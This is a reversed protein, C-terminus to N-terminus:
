VGECVGECGGECGGECVGCLGSWLGWGGPQEILGVCLGSHELHLVRDSEDQLDGRTQRRGMHSVGKKESLHMWLMETSREGLPLHTEIHRSLLIQRSLLIHERRWLKRSQDVCGGKDVRKAPSPGWVFVVNRFFEPHRVLPEQPHTLQKWRCRLSHLEFLCVGELGCVRVRGGRVGGGQVWGGAGM